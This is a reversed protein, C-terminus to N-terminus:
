AADHSPPAPLLFALVASVLTAAGLLYFVTALGWIDAVMGGIAPALISMGSQAGFLLSTASGGMDPPTADMLWSHAVPRAAFAFVGLLFVTAVFLVGSGTLTLVVVGATTASLATVLVPKRGIRDSLAGAVPGGIVGGVQLAFLAAGLWLPGYGLVDALYLPLFVLLGNQMVARFGSMACIGIVTKNRFLALLGRLYEGREMSPREKRAGPVDGPMLIVAILAAIAVVPLASVAATAQWPWWLLIMGAVLPAGAEGANAGLTHISLAYGRNAPFRRSLYSIAAPHWLNNAAGMLSILVILVVFRDSAAFAFLAAASVLLAVVQFLVRRGTLDVVPGSGLNAATSAGFMFAVLLGAESYSLGLDETIFPLLLYFSGTVWHIGGHGLGVLCVPGQERWHLGTLREVASSITM